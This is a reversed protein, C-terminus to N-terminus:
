CASLPYDIGTASLLEPSAIRIATGENNEGEKKAEDDKNNAEGDEAKAEENENQAEAKEDEAEDDDSNKAEVNEKKQPTIQLGSKSGQPPSAIAGDTPMLIVGALVVVVAAVVIGIGFMQRAGTAKAATITGGILGLAASGIIIVLATKQPLVDTMSTLLVLGAVAGVVGVFGLAALGMSESGGGPTASTPKMGLQKMGEERTEVITWVNHLGALKLVEFVMEDTNIIVMRGKRGSVSKWLRVILAVMASGMYNLETLDVLFSPPNMANLKEIVENGVQEFDAWQSDNLEPQIAFVSYGSATEFRYPTESSTM